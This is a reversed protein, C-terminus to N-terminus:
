PDAPRRGSPARSSKQRSSYRQWNMFAFLLFGLALLLEIPEQDKGIIFHGEWRYERRVTIGLPRIHAYFVYELYSYLAFTLLFYHSILYRPTLLEVLLPFRRKLKAPVLLRSFAGYFGVVIFAIGLPFKELNHINIEEKTSNEVFFEPTELGLIRQGWSIEELMALFMGAALFGYLAGLVKQEGRWLRFALSLAFGAAGLFALATAWEVVGDEKILYMYWNRSTLPASTKGIWMLAVFFAPFLIIVWRLRPADEWHPRGLTFRVDDM